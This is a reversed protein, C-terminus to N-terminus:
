TAGGRFLNKMYRMQEVECRREEFSPEGFINLRALRLFSEPIPIRETSITTDKKRKREREDLVSGNDPADIHAESAGLAADDERKRKKGAGREDSLQTTTTLSAQNASTESRRAAVGDAHVPPPPPPAPLQVSLDIKRSSNWMPDPTDDHARERRLGRRTTPAGCGDVTVQPPTPSPAPPEFVPTPQRTPPDPASTV